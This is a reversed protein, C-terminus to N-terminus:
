ESLGAVAYALGFSNVDSSEREKDGVVGDVGTHQGDRLRL